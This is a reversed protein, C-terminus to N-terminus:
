EQFINEHFFDAIQFVNFCMLQAFVTDLFERLHSLEATSAHWRNGPFLVGSNISKGRQMSAIPVNCAALLAKVKECHSSRSHLLLTFM